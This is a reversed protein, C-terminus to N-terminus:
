LESSTLAAVAAVLAANQGDTGVTIRLKDDLRPEKFYRVLIGRAKLGLYIREADGQPPRVLLFNSRSPWVRFGMRRLDATLRGRSARVKAVCRKKYAQDLMAAAGVACAVSDVPYSDKVKNLVALLRPNALGYGLRLGALSYGKSLTRLVIVNDHKKALSLADGNAFDVYAEDIVLLGPVNRALRDLQRVTAITGSPSNPTCVLTVAGRAAILGDVPLDYDEDYPVEVIEADQMRALTRFLVYTPMPYVIRRGPEACALFIMSLLDDSGNGALIWDEPLRHVKAAARRFLRSAPDSYLRLREPDFERLVKMAKPSPPYPNENTNLKVVKAGPPPQEGPVYPPMRAINDRIYDITQVM